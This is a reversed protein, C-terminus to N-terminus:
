LCTHATVTCKTKCVFYTKGTFYLRTVTYPLLNEPNDYQKMKAVISQVGSIKHLSFFVRFIEVHVVLDVCLTYDVKYVVLSSKNILREVNETDPKKM